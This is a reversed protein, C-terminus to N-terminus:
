DNIVLDSLDMESCEYAGAVADPGDDEQDKVDTRYKYMQEVMIRYDYSRLDDELFRIEGSKYAFGISQIRAQKSSQHEIPSYYIPKDFYKQLMDRIYKGYSGLNGTAECYFMRMAYEILLRNVEETVVELPVKLMLCDAIGLFVDEIVYDKNRLVYKIM